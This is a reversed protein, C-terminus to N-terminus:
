RGAVALTKARAFEVRGVAALLRCCGLWLLVAVSMQTAIILWYGAQQLAPDTIARWRLKSDPVITDMSLVHRVFQWNSSYDTINGFAVLTFFLAIAAVLAIKCLRVVIM